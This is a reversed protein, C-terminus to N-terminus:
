FRKIVSRGGYHLLTHKNSVKQPKGDVRSDLLTGQRNDMSQINANVLQLNDLDGIAALIRACAKEALVNHLDPPLYPIIATNALSVYDGILISQPIDTTVFLISTGSIGNLPIPIDYKYIKHGPRTQLFDVLALNTMNSPVQDFNIITTSPIIIGNTINNTQFQTQGLPYTLTVTPTTPPTAIIGFFANSNITNAFNVATAASDAGILFEISTPSGSDIVTLLLTQSPNPNVPPTQIQFTNGAALNANDFTFTQSFNVITAANIDQVLQNPRIFFSVQLSGTPNAITTSPLVIENNELYFPYANRGAANFDRQFWAKEEPNIRTMEYLNNNTDMYFVDRVRMGIARDPIPYRQQNPNLTYNVYTVFYEQHYELVSPVEEIFMQENVFKLLDDDSFTVQSTPFSIKRKIMEILDDSTKWPTVLAM